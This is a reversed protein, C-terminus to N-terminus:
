PLSFDRTNSRLLCTVLIPCCAVLPLCRPSSCCSYTVVIELMVVYRVITILTERETGLTILCTLGFAKELKLAVVATNFLSVVSFHTMTLSSVKIRLMYMATKYKWM